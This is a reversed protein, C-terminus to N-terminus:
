TWVEYIAEDDGPFRGVNIMDAPIVARAAELTDVIATPEAKPLASPQGQVISWERVVFKGPYDNPHRYIAFQRLVRPGSMADLIAATESM